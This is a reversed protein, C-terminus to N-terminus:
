ILSHDGTVNLPHFSVWSSISAGHALNAIPFESLAVQDVFGGVSGSLVQHSTNKFTFHLDIRSTGAFGGLPFIGQLWRDISAQYTLKYNFTAGRVNTGV